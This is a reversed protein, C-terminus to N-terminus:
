WDKRAEATLLGISPLPLLSLEKGLAGLADDADCKLVAAGEGASSITVEQVPGAKGARRRLLVGRRGWLVPDEAWCPSLAGLQVIGPQESALRLM